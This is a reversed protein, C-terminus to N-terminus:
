SGLSHQGEISRSRVAESGARRGKGYAALDTLASRDAFSGCGATRAEFAEEVCSPTVVMLAFSQRELEDGVGAAFGLCFSTRVGRSGGCRHRCRRAEENALRTGVSYLFDFATRAALADTAYGVFVFTKMKRRKGLHRVYARCRFSRAAILALKTAWNRSVPDACEEVMQENKRHGSLEADTIGYRVVFRQAALAAAIAEAETCGKEVTRDLLSKVKSVVEERAKGEIM